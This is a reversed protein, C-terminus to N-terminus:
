RKSANGEREPMMGCLFFSRLAAARGTPGNVYLSSNLRFQCVFTVKSVMSGVALVRGTWRSRMRNGDPYLRVSARARLAGREVGVQSYEMRGLVVLEHRDRKELSERKILTAVEESRDDRTMRGAQIKEEKMALPLVGEPRPRPQVQERASLLM